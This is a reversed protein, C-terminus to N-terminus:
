HDQLHIVLRNQKGIKQSYIPVYVNIVRGAVVLTICLIVRLQLLISSRPWLYPFLTRM